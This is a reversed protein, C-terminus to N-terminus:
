VAEPANDDTRATPIKHDHAPPADPPLV